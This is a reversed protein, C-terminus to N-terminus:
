AEDGGLGCRFLPYQQILNRTDKWLLFRDGLTIEEDTGLKAFRDALPDPPLLVFGCVVLAGALGLALWRKRAPLGASLSVAAIVFLASLAAIFGMRSFSYIIGLFILAAVALMACALAAAGVTLHDRSRARRASAIVHMAA